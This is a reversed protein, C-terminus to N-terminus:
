DVARVHEMWASAQLRAPTFRARVHPPMAFHFNHEPSYTMVNFDRSGYNFYLNTRKAGGASGLGCHLLSETFLLVDGAKGTVPVSGPLDLGNYKGWPLDFNSKHGGPIVAMCGNTPTNDSLFYVVNLMRSRPRGSRASYQDPEVGRHWGGAGSGDGATKSIAWSNVIQPDNVFNQLFPFVTPYDIMRDFLTSMRFLGNLRTFGPRVEKTPQGIRGDPWPKRWRSDDHDLRELREVEALLQERDIDSLAGRLLLYGQLDFLFRHEDSVM